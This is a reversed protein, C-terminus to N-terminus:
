GLVGGAAKWQGHFQVLMNLLMPFGFMIAQMQKPYRQILVPVYRRSIEAFMPQLGAAGQTMQLSLAELQEGVMAVTAAKLAASYPGSAAADHALTLHLIVPLHKELSARVVGFPDADDKFYMGIVEALLAEGGLAEQASGAMKAGLAVLADPAAAPGVKAALFQQLAPRAVDFPTWDSGLIRMANMQLTMQEDMGPATKRLADLVASLLSMADAELASPAAAPPAVAAM